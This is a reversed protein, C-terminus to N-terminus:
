RKRMDNYQAVIKEDATASESNLLLTTEDVRSYDLM